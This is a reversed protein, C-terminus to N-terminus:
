LGVDRGQSLGRLRGERVSTAAERRRPEAWRRASSHVEARAGLSRATRNSSYFLEDAPIQTHDDVCFDHQDGVGRMIRSARPPGSAPLQDATARWSYGDASLTMLTRECARDTRRPVGRAVTIGM